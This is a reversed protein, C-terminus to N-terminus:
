YWDCVASLNERAALMDAKRAAEKRLASLSARGWRNLEGCRANYACNYSHTAARMDDWARQQTPTMVIRSRGAGNGRREAENAQNDISNTM